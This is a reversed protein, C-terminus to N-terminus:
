VRPPREAPALITEKGAISDWFRLDFEVRLLKVAQKLPMQCYELYQCSSQYHFCYSTREPWFGTARCYCWWKAYYTVTKLFNEMMFDPRTQPLITFDYADDYPSRGNALESAKRTKTGKHVKILLVDVDHIVQGTILTAVYAYGTFQHSMNFTKTFTERDFFTTSKYDLISKKGDIEPIRDIRASYLLNPAIQIAASEENVGPSTMLPNDKFRHWFARLIGEGREVTRLDEWEPPIGYEDQFMMIAEDISRHRQLVDLAAHIAHGFQMPSSSKSRGLDQSFMAYKPCGMFDDLISWSYVFPERCNLCRYDTPNEEDKDFFGMHPHGCSVCRHYCNVEGTISNVQLIENGCQTCNNM